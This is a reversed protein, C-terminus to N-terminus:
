ARRTTTTPRPGKGAEALEDGPRIEDVAQRSLTDIPTLTEGAEVKRIRETHTDIAKELVVGNGDM